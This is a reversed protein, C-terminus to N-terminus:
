RFDQVCHMAFRDEYREPTAVPDESLLPPLEAAETEARAGQLASDLRPIIGARVVQDVNEDEILVPANVGGPLGTPIAEAQAPSRADREEHWPPWTPMQAPSWPPHAILMTRRYPATARIMSPTAMTATRGNVVENTSRHDRLSM